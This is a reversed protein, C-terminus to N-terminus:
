EFIQVCAPQAIESYRERGVLRRWGRGPARTGTGSSSTRGPSPRGRDREARGAARQRLQRQHDVRVPASRAAPREGPGDARGPPAHRPSRAARPAVRARRGDRKTSSRRPARRHTLRPAASRTGRGSTAEQEALDRQVREDDQDRGPDEQREEELGLSRASRRGRDSRAAAAACSTALGVRRREVERKSTGPRGASGGSGGSPPARRRRRSRRQVQHAIKKVPAKRLGRSRLQMSRASSASRERDELAEGAVRQGVVQQGPHPERDGVRDRERDGEDAACSPWARRPRATGPCGVGELRPRYM